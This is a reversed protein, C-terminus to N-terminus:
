NQDSSANLKECNEFLLMQNHVYEAYTMIHVPPYLKNHRKVMRVYKRYSREDM